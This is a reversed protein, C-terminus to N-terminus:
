RVLGEKEHSTRRKECPKLRGTPGPGSGPRWGDDGRGNPVHSSHRSRDRGELYVWIRRIELRPEHSLALHDGRATTSRGRGQGRDEEQGGQPQGRRGPGGGALVRA